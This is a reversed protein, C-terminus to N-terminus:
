NTNINIRVFCQLFILLFRTIKRACHTVVTTPLHGDYVKRTYRISFVRLPVLHYVVKPSVNSTLIM